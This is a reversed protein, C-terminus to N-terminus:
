RCAHGTTTRQITAMTPTFTAPAAIPVAKSLANAVGADSLVRPKSVIPRWKGPAALWNPPDITNRLSRPTRSAATLPGIVAINAATSLISPTVSTLGNSSSPACCTEPSPVITNAWTFRSGVTSEVSDAAMPASIMSSMGATSPKRTSTPPAARASSAGGSVSSMPRANAITTSIRAKPDTSAIPRGIPIASAPTIVPATPRTLRRLLMVVMGSKAGSMPTIIPSPM